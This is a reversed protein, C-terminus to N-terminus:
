PPTPLVDHCSNRQDRAARTADPCRDGLREVGDAVLDRRVVAAVIRGGLLELSLGADRDVFPVHAGVFRASGADLLDLGIEPRDLHQDVVRADGAVGHEM